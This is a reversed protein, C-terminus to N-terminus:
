LYLLSKPLDKGNNYNDIIAYYAQHLEEMFASNSYKEQITIIANEKLTQALAPEEVLRIMNQAISDFDRLDSLLVSQRKENLTPTGATITTVVPLGSAMSELITSSVYDVKIPILAFRSKKIHAIVEDHTNKSGTFFVNQEIGLEKIREDLNKKYDSAYAGSMNLTLEPHKKCAIAFAEIAIDGAKSIKGAFYVFDYQKLTYDTNVDVGVPLGIRLFKAQTKIYQKIIAPYSSSKTLIYDCHRLVNSEVKSRYEYLPKSIPYNKDYGPESMLTQLSVLCPIGKPVDLAALSYHPNEAGWFHVLNPKLERICNAIIRRNKRYKRRRNPFLRKYLYSFLNDLQDRYCIYHVGNIDFQQRDGKIGMQHCIVTLDVDKYYEFQKIGNSLYVALDNDCLLKMGPIFSLIRRYYFRSYELKSRTKSDSFECVWVVKLKQEM